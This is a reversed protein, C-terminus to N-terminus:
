IHTNKPDSKINLENTMSGFVMTISVAMQQLLNVRAMSRAAKSVVRMLLVVWTLVSVKVMCRITKLAVKTLKAM